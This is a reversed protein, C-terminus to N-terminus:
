LSYTASLMGNVGDERYKDNTQYDKDLANNVKLQLNLSDTVQYAARVDLLGFGALQNDNAKDTYVHDQARVSFGLSFDGWRNDASLNFSNNPRYRLDNGSQEDEPSLWTYNAAVDWGLVPAAVSAEVGEIEAESVNMPTWIWSGPATPAWEILDEVTNRFGIVEASFSDASYKLGLDINESTEPMLNPNGNSGWPSQYYLDNFTPAKFATGWSAVLKLSDTFNFGYAVNGTTENGYQENDDNRAGVVISHDGLGLQYQAYIGVNDRETELYETNSAEVEDNFYDVGLTLINDSNFAFDNQIDYFERTTKFSDPNINESLDDKETSEDRNYGASWDTSFVDSWKTQLKTSFADVEFESYPKCDVFCFANDFESEGENHQYNASLIVQESFEVGADLAFSTNRYADDDDNGNSEEFSRDFGETETYGVQGMLWASEGRLTGQAHIDQESNSGAGVRISGGSQESGKRTFIQLVGGIADSGYLSSRPGRVLEIREISAPDIHQLSAEGLTASGVRIGDVLVLVQGSSTGRVSVGTQSGRGGSTKISVSTMRTLLSGMDRVQLRAIDDATIVEIPALTNSLSQATRTATVVTEEQLRTSDAQVISASSAAAVALVLASRTTLFSM